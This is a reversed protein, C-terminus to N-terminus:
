TREYLDSAKSTLLKYTETNNPIKNEFPVIVKEVRLLGEGPGGALYPVQTESINLLSSLEKIDNESQSLLVLFASNSLMLRAEDSLLLDEINQTIGTMSCGYKRGRKWLAKLYQETSEDQFMLYIEDIFVATKKGLSKNLAMRNFISDLVVLMALPKLNEGLDRIDYSVLRSNIDVNSKKAFMNLSGSTFLEITRALKQAEMEKQNSFEEMLNALTPVEGKYGSKVYDKYVSTLCRDIISKEVATLREGNMRAILTLVFDSKVAIPNAESEIKVVESSLDLANISTATSADLKVVEGKLKEVLRGYESEPDIIIVDTSDDKLIISLIESKVMFSKGAGSTGLVFANQNLLLDKNITIPKKSLPNMGHYVGNEHQIEISRFPMLTAVCETILLRNNLMENVGVPLSTNFAEVQMTRGIAVQLGANKCNSVTADSVQFLEEESDAMVLITVTTECLSQGRENLDFLMQELDEKQSRYAYPIEASFNDSKNQEAQWKTINEEVMFLKREVIKRAEALPLVRCDISLCTGKAIDLARYLVDDRVTSDYEKVYFTRTYTKHGGNELIIMDDKVECSDPCIYDRYDRGLYMGSALDFDFVEHPRYVEMLFRLRQECSIAVMDSGIERLGAKVLKEMRDFGNEAEQWTEAEEVFTMILRTDIANSNIMKSIVDKNHEHRLNDLGDNRDNLISNTAYNDADVIRNDLTIKFRGGVSFNSIISCYRDHILAKNEESLTEFNIDSFIYQRTFTKNGHYFIGKEIDISEIHITDQVRKPVEHFRKYKNLFKGFLFNFLGM